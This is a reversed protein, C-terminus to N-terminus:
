MIFFLSYCKKLYCSISVPDILMPVSPYTTAFVRALPDLAFSRLLHVVLSGLSLLYLPWPATIIAAIELSLIVFTGISFRRPFTPPSALLILRTSVPRDTWRFHPTVPQSAPVLIIKAHRCAFLLVLPPALRLSVWFHALAFPSDPILVSRGTPVNYARSLLAYPWALSPAAYLRYSAM